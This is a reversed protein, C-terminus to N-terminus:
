FGCFLLDENSTSSYLVEGNSIRFDFGIQDSENPNRLWLIWKPDIETLSYNQM